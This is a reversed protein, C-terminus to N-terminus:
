LEARSHRGQARGDGHGHRVCALDAEQQERADRRPAAHRHGGAPRSVSARAPGQSPVLRRVSTGAEPVRRACEAEHGRLFLRMVEHSDITLAKCINGIENAFSIKLGHYANFAYKVMEAVKIPVVHTPTDIGLYLM